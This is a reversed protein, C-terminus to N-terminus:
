ERAQKLIKQMKQIVYSLGYFISEGIIFHGINLETIEKIKAVEFATQYNLGHGAHCVLGLKKAFNASVNLQQYLQKSKESNFNHCFDGTHLEVIDAGLNKAIEIHQLNPNIFLSVLINQQKIASIFNALNQRDLAINLGGETTIEARKEPVLCVSHPKIKCAITLMELTPAMELNIPLNTKQKIQTLDNDKIHRRDERLHMTIGDAGANEAIIAAEILCPHNNGRANRVTAVHDINVGLLMKM